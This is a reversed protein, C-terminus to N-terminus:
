LTSLDFLLCYPPVPRPSEITFSIAFNCLPLTVTTLLNFLPLVKVICIGVFYYNKVFFMNRCCKSLIKSCKNAIIFNNYIFNPNIDSNLYNQKILTPNNASKKIMSTM